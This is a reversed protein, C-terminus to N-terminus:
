NSYNILLNNISDNLKFINLNENYLFRNYILKDSIDINKFKGDFLIEDHSINKDIDM